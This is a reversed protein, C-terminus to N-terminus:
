IKMVAILIVSIILNIFGGIMFRTAYKEHNLIALIASIAFPFVINATIITIQTQETVDFGETLSLFILVGAIIGGDISLIDIRSLNAQQKSDVILKRKSIDPFVSVIIISIVLVLISLSPGALKISTILSPVLTFEASIIGHKAITKEDFLMNEKGPTPNVVQYFSNYLSLIPETFDAKTKNPGNLYQQESWKNFKYDLFPEAKCKTDIDMRIPINRNTSVEKGNCIIKGSNEPYIYFKVVASLKNSTGNITSLTKSEYNAVYILNTRPNIAVDYPVSDVQIPDDEVKNLNTDFISITNHGSNAIYVKSNNTNFALAFPFLGVKYHSVSKNKSIIDIVSITNEGSNTVYIKGTSPDVTIGTPSLGVLINTINKYSFTHNLETAYDFISVDNTAMNAIYAKNLTQDIGVDWPISYRDMSINGIIKNTIGDIIDITSNINETGENAVFILSGLGGFENSDIGMDSVLPGSKFSKVVTNNFGDIVYIQDTEPSAVYIMNTKPNVVIANPVGNLTINSIISNTFGDVVYVKDTDPIALYIRNTTPNVAVDIPSSDLIIGSKDIINTKNTKIDFKISKIIGKVIPLYDDYKEIEAQFEITYYKIGTNVYILMKQFTANSNPDDKFTYTINHAENNNLTTKNSEFIDYDYQYSKIYNIDYSIFDMLETEQSSFVQIALYNQNEDFSKNYIEKIPEIYMFSLTEYTINWSNPYEFTLGITKNHYINHHSMNSFNNIFGSKFDNSTQNLDFSSYNKDNLTITESNGNLDQAHISYDEITLNFCILILFISSVNFLLIVFEERILFM